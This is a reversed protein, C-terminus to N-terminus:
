STDSIDFEVTNLKGPKGIISEQRCSVPLHSGELLKKGNVYPILHFDSFLSDKCKSMNVVDLM